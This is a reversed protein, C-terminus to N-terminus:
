LNDDRQCTELLGLFSMVGYFLGQVLLSAIETQFSEPEPGTIVQPLTGMALKVEYREYAAVSTPKMTINSILKSAGSQLRELLLDANILSASFVYIHRLLMEWKFLISCLSLPLPCSGLLQM